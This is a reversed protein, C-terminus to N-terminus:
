AAEKFMEMLEQGGNLSEQMRPDKIIKDGQEELLSFINENTGATEGKLFEQDLRERQATTEDHMKKVVESITGEGHDSGDDGKEFKRQTEAM